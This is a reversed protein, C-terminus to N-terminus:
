GQLRRLHLLREFLLQDAGGGVGRRFLRLGPELALDRGPSFDGSLHLDFHGLSAGDAAVDDEGSENAHPRRARRPLVNAIFISAGGATGAWRIVTSFSTSTGIRSPARSLASTNRGSSAPFNGAM